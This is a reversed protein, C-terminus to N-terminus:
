IINNLYLTWPGLVLLQLPTLYPLLDHYLVPEPTCEIYLNTGIHTPFFIWSQTTGKPTFPFMNKRPDMENITQSKISIFIEIFDHLLGEFAVHINYKLYRM